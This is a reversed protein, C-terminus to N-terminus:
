AAAGGTMEHAISRLAREFLEPPQGGVLTYRQNIVLTPVGSVGERRWYEEVQRVERGHADSHITQKAAEPDLGARLAAAELVAPDSVDAGDHFYAALLAHKLALQRGEGAAHTLLRHADFTNYIRAEPGRRMDFGLAAARARIGEGAARMQDPTSGYKEAVHETILQGERGMGPNLEFPHFVVTADVAGELRRLAEELSLLGILCWPCVVDSVFDIFIEAAM